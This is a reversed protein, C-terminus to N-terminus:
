DVREFVVLKGRFDFTMVFDQFFGNGISVQFNKKDHGIGPLWLTVPASDIALRGLRVSKLIGVKHEGEGNNVADETKGEDELKLLTVAEPTLSFSESSGTDLTAKMKEGNIFVSDIIVVGDERRLPFAILNVTNPAFRIGPYPLDSHFRLKSNPYDIQLIRDKLFSYGLIGHVPKGVRKSLNTLDIAGASVDKVVVSGLEVTPLKTLYVSHAETGGGTAQSSTSGVQLGLDRATATDIVSPDTDTDVLMNFPGKGGIKVQVLVQNHIFEFPVEAPAKATQCLAGAAYALLMLTATTTAIRKFSKM